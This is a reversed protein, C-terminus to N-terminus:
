KGEWVALVTSVQFTGSNDRREWDGSQSSCILLLWARQRQHICDLLYSSLYKALEIEKTYRYKNHHRIDGAVFSEVFTQNHNNM